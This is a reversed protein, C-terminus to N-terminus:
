EGEKREGHTVVQSQAAITTVGTSVTRTGAETGEEAMTEWMGEVTGYFTSTTLVELLSPDAKAM